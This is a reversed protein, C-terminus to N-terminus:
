KQTRVPRVSGGTVRNSACEISFSSDFFQIDSASTSGNELSLLSRSWYEGREGPKDLAGEGARSGAAPLFLTKGNKKSTILFGNIGNQTTWKSTTNGSDFLEKIQTLSPMRWSSGWNATAADDEPLLENKNDVTGCISYECYKTVKGSGDGWKYNDFDYSKKTEIEGWAYYNGYEEPKSAGVNCTAWLTGSPLGLDVYEHDVTKQNNEVVTKEEEDDDKSCSGLTFAAVFVTALAFFKSISM